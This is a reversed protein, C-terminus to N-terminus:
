CSYIGVYLNKQAVLSHSSGCQFCVNLGVMLILFWKFFVRKAVLRLSWLFGYVGTLIGDSIVVIEYFCM